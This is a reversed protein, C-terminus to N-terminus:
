QQWRAAAAILEYCERGTLIGEIGTGKIQPATNLDIAYNTMDSSYVYDIAWLPLAPWGRLLQPQSSEMISITVAPANNSKWTGDDNHGEYKLQWYQDGIGLYRFSIARETPPWQGVYVSAFEDPCYEMAEDASLLIKGEGKHACPDVYIVVAAPREKEVLVRVMAYPPVRWGLMQLAFLQMQKTVTTRAYRAFRYPAEEGRRAFWHDYYDHFDSHLHMKVDNM